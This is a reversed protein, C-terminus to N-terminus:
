VTGVQVRCFGVGVVGRHGELAVCGAPRGCWGVLRVMVGSSNLKIPFYTASVEELAARRDLMARAQAFLEGQGGGPAGRPQLHLSSMRTPLMSYNQTGTAFLRLLVISSGADIIHKLILFPGVAHVRACMHSLLVLCVRVRICSIVFVRVHARAHAVCVCM